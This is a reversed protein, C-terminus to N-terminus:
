SIAATDFTIELEEWQQETVNSSLESMRHATPIAGTLAVTKIPNGDVTMQTITIETKEYEGNKVKTRAEAFATNDDLLRRVTIQGTPVQRSTWMQQMPNGQQDQYQVSESPTSDQYGGVSFIFPVNDLDGGTITWHSMPANTYESM